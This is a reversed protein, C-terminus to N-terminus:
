KTESRTAMDGCWTLVWGGLNPDHASQLEVPIMSAGKRYPTAPSICFGATQLAHFMMPFQCARDDFIMPFHFGQDDFGMFWFSINRRWTKNWVTKNCTWTSWWKIMSLCWIGQWLFRGYMMYVHVFNMYKMISWMLIDGCQPLVWRISKFSGSECRVSKGELNLNITPQVVSSWCFFM